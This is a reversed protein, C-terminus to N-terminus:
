RREYLITHLDAIPINNYSFNNYNGNAGCDAYLNKTVLNCIGILIIIFIRTLNLLM